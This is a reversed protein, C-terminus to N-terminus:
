PHHIIGLFKTPRPFKQDSRSIESDKITPQSTENKQTEKQRPTWFQKLRLRPIKFLLVPM